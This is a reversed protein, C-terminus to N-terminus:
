EESELFKQYSLIRSKDIGNDPFHNSFAYYYKTPLHQKKQSESILNPFFSLYKDDSEFVKAPLLYESWNINKRVEFDEKEYLSLIVEKSKLADIVSKPAGYNTALKITNEIGIDNRVFLWSLDATESLFLYSGQKDFLYFECINNDKIHSNLVPAFNGDFLFSTRENPNNSLIRAPAYSYWQFIKCSRKKILDLLKSILEPDDKSIYETNLGLHALKEKFGDSIKGTVIIHSYQSVEKPFEMSHILEVGDIGPMDYDTSNIFIIKFRDANYPENRIANFNLETDNGKQILCRETFPFYRHNDKIYELAKQPQNFCVISVKDSLEIRLMDLFSKDDDVILITTPHYCVPMIFMSDDLSSFM